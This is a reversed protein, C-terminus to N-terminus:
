EATKRVDSVAESLPRVYYSVVDTHTVQWNQILTRIADSEDEWYGAYHCTSEDGYFVEYRCTIWWFRVRTINSFDPM